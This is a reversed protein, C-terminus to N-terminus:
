FGIYTTRTGGLISSGASVKNGPVCLEADEGLTGDDFDVNGFEAEDGCAALDNPTSPSLDCVVALVVAADVSNKKNLSIGGCIVRAVFLSIRNKTTNCPAPTSANVSVSTNLLDHM